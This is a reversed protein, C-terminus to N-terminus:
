NDDDGMILSIVIQAGYVSSLPVAPGQPGTAGTDGKEGKGTPNPM